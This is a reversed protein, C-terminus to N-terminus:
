DKKAGESLKLMMRLVEHENLLNDVKEKIQEWYKDAEAYSKRKYEEAERIIKIVKEEAKAQVERCIDEQRDSLNKINELYQQAAADAAEFVGNLALSAEAMSGAKEATIQRSELEKQSNALKEKLENNEEIQDVLMQLLEGRSLHKLEKDTM